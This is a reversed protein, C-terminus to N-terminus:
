GRKFCLRGPRGKKGFPPSARRKLGARSSGSGLSSPPAAPPTRVATGASSAAEAPFRTDWARRAADLVHAPRLDNTDIVVEEPVPEPQWGRHSARVYRATLSAKRRVAVSPDVTLRLLLVRPDRRARGIGRLFRDLHVRSVYGFELLLNRGRDLVIRGHLALIDVEPQFHEPHKGHLDSPHYALAADSELAWFGGTRVRDLGHV